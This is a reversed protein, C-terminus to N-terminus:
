SYIYVHLPLEVERLNRLPPLLFLTRCADKKIRSLTLSLSEKLLSLSLSFSLAARTRKLARMKGRETHIYVHIKHM